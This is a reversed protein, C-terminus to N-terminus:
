AKDLELVNANCGVQITRPDLLAYCLMIFDWNLSVPRRQRYLLADRMPMPPPRPELKAILSLPNCKGKFTSQNSITNWLM